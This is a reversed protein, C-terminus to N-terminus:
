NFLTIDDLAKGVVEYQSFRPHDIERPFSCGIRYCSMGVYTGLYTIDQVTQVYLYFEGCDGPRIESRGYEVPHIIDGSFTRHYRLGGVYSSTSLRSRVLPHAIILCTM